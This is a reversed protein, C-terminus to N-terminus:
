NLFSLNIIFHVVNFYRKWKSSYHHSILKQIPRYEREIYSFDTFGPSQEANVIFKKVISKQGPNIMVTAYEMTWATGYGLVQEIVEKYKRRGWVKFEIIAESDEHKLLIDAFGVKRAPEAEAFYNMSKLVFLVKDRFHAELISQPEDNLKFGPSVAIARITNELTEAFKGITPSENPLSLTIYIKRPQSYSKRTGERFGKLKVKDNDKYGQIAIPNIRKGKLEDFHIPNLVLDWYVNEREIEIYCALFPDEAVIKPCSLHVTEFPLSLTFLNLSRARASLKFYLEGESEIEVLFGSSTFFRVWDPERTSSITPNQRLDIFGLWNGKEFSTPLGSISAEFDVLDIDVTGIILPAKRPIDGRLRVTGSYIIKDSTKSITLASVIATQQLITEEITFYKGIPIRDDNKLLVIEGKQKNEFEFGSFQEEYGLYIHQPHGPGKWLNDESKNKTPSHCQAYEKGSGCPCDSKSTIKMEGGNFKAYSILKVPEAQFQGTM